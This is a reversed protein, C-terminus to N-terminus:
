AMVFYFMEGNEKTDWYRKQALRLDLKKIYADRSAFPLLPGKLCCHFNASPVTFLFIGDKKLIRRVENLVNEINEIHELVSNSFVFDFSNDEEPIKDASVTHIRQYIGSQQALQTERNDIDVGVLWPKRKGIRELLIKTLKGDGCGLDIGLGAPFPQSTVHEVEIARWFAAALQSPYERIFRILLKKDIAM